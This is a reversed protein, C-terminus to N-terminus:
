YKYVSVIQNYYAWRFGYEILKKGNKEGFGSIEIYEEHDLGFGGRVKVISGIKLKNMILRKM